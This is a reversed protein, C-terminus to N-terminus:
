NVGCEIDQLVDNWCHWDSNGWEQEDKVRGAKTERDWEINITTSSLSITYFADYDAEPILGYMIYSGNEESGTEVYTYKLDSIGTEYDKNWEVEIVKVHAVDNSYLNWEAHTHDYRIIGDFWIVGQDPLDSLAIKMEMSFEENNLREGTLIAVYNVQNFTFEKTWRWRNDGLYEPNGSMMLINSYAAVPPAMKITILGNWFVLNTFAHLFNDYTAVIAKGQAPGNDFDSFDMFLSEAPPLVPRDDVNEKDCSVTSFILSVMVAFLLTKKISLIKKM